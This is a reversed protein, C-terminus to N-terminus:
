LDAGGRGESGSEREGVGGFNGLGGNGRVHSVPAEPNRRDSDGTGVVAAGNGVRGLVAAHRQPPSSPQPRPNLGRAAIGPGKWAEAAQDHRRSASPRECLRNTCSIGALPAACCAREWGVLRVQVPGGPAPHLPHCLAAGHVPCHGSAAVPQEVTAHGAPKWERHSHTHTHTPFPTQLGPKGCVVRCPPQPLPRLWGAPAGGCWGVGHAAGSLANLANFMEVVVLVTMSITSPSRSRFVECAEGECHQFNRLQAWTLGPGGQPAPSTTSERPQLAQTHRRTFLLLDGGGGEGGGARGGGLGWAESARPQLARLFLGGSSGSRPLSAGRLVPVVMHLWVRHRRWRVSWYDYIQPLCAPPCTVPAPPSPRSGLRTIMAPGAHAGPGIKPPPAHARGQGRGGKWGGCRAFLWGSVVGEDARRPPQRM